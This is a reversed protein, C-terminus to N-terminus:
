AAIYSGSVHFNDLANLTIPSNYDFFEDQGTGATYFLFLRNTGAAVHGSISWENGTSEDHLCGDRLLIAYKSDFPLDVYYQGTGFNTINDMDVQIQFFVLPGTKVYSGSFLPAGDFTPQTATTGGNVAFLTEVPTSQEIDGITAIQNESSVHNLYEGNQSHLIVSDTAVLPLDYDTHIAIVKIGENGDVPGYLTGDSDFRWHNEGTNDRYFTYSLLPEFSYTQGTGAIGATVVTNGDQELINVVEFRAVVTESGNWYNADFYDGLEIDVGTGSIYLSGYAETEINQHTVSTPLIKSSVKVSGNEDSIQVHTREGGLILDATSEDISGGARIHIHGPAMPDPAQTPEIILYQDTQLDADPVIRFTDNQNGDSSNGFPNEIYGAAPFQFQGNIDMRWSQQSGDTNATFNIDNNAEIFVDDGNARLYLDDAASIVIDMEDETEILLDGEDFDIDVKSSFAYQFALDTLTFEGESPMLGEIYFTIAGDGTGAGSYPAYYSGNVSIKLNDVQYGTADMFSIIASANTLTLQSQQSDLVTWTATDWSDTFTATQNNGYAQLLARGNGPEFKLRGKVDGDDFTEIGSNGNTGIIGDQRFDWRNQGFAGTIIRVEDGASTLEITDNATIWVDDASNISIDADQNDDRTTRISMDHNHITMFSEPGDDDYTFTFDAIDAGSSGDDGKFGTLEVANFVPGGAEGFVWTGPSKDVVKLSFDHGGAEPTHIFNLAYPVNESIASAELQIANGIPQNNHHLQVIVWSGATDNAAEGTVSIQVPKGTTAMEVGTILAGVDAITVSGGANQQYNLASGTGGGSNQTFRAM